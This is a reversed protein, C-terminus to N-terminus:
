AEAAIYLVDENKLSTVCHTNASQCNLVKLIILRLELYFKYKHNRELM